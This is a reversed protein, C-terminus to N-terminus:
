LLPMGFQRSLWALAKGEVLEWEAHPESCRARLLTVAPTSGLVKIAVDGTLGLATVGGVGGIDRRILGKYSGYRRPVV